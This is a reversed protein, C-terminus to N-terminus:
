VKNTIPIKNINTNFCIPEIDMQKLIYKSDEM